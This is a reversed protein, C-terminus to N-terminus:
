YRNDKNKENERRRNKVVRVVAMVAIILLWIALLNVALGLINGLIGMGGFLGGFLMGALGGIMLGKMLSGGSFFGPKKTAGATGSTNSKNTSKQVNDSKKPTNSYTKKGSSFGGGGRRADVSDAPALVVLFMTLAVFIALVKKM